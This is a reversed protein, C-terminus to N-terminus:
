GMEKPSKTVLDPNRPNKQFSDSWLPLRTGTPALLKCRNVVENEILRRFSGEIEAPDLVKRMFFPPLRAFEKKKEAFEWRPANHLKQIAL